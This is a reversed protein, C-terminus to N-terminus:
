FGYEPDDPSADKESIYTKETRVRPRDDRVRKNEQANLKSNMAREAFGTTATSGQNMVNRGHRTPRRKEALEGDSASKMQDWRSRDEETVFGFMSSLEEESPFGMM